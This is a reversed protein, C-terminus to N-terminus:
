RPNSHLAIAVALYYEMRVNQCLIKALDGQSPADPRGLRATVSHLWPGPTQFLTKFESESSM